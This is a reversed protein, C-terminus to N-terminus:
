DISAEGIDCDPFPSTQWANKITIRARGKRVFITFIPPLNFYFRLLATNTNTNTHPYDGSDVEPCMEQTNYLIKVVSCETGGM